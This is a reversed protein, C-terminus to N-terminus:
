EIYGSPGYLTRDGCRQNLAVAIESGRTPHENSPSDLKDREQRSYGSM